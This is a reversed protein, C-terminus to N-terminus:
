GGSEGDADAGQQPEVAIAASAAGIEIHGPSRRWEGMRDALILGLSAAGDHRCSPAADRAAGGDRHEAGGGATPRASRRRM